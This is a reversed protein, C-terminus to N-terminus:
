EWVEAIALAKQAGVVSLSFQRNDKKGVFMGNSFKWEYGGISHKNLRRTIDDISHKNVTTNPFSM